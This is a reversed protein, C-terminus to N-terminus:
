EEALESIANLRAARQAPYWGAVFAAALILLSSQVVFHLPFHFQITWGFSQVNIVHILVWSLALGIFVGIVQSVGALLLAEIFVMKKLQRVETGVLRLYALEKRRELILTLLTSAVGLIAVFISILELAYTIEFTSDFIRLIERRLSSNTHIFVRYTKGLSALIRSRAGEASVGEQLYIALSFPQIEGFNRTFTRNDMLITGRDNTYDYFIATVLFIKEGSPMALKLEDGVQKNYKYSFSESVIVVDQGIAARLAERGEQPNKILLQGRKRLVEFDRAGLNIMSEGFPLTFSRFGDVAAVDPNERFLTVLQPSLHTETGNASRGAPRVYLDAQLTQGVWYIVTDRFSEIMIAIAAMMSLSVALAAVSISIRSIGGKLNANALKGEVGFMKSLPISGVRGLLYLVAPTLFATGFVIAVASLYGFVPISGKPKVNALGAGLAFFVIPLVIHRKKLRFRTELRDAGTIASLPTVRSAEWSPILAALLSLPMGMGFALAVDAWGLSPLKSATAIYLVKVTTGTIKLALEALFRSGLLGTFCGCIAILAAEALFLLMVTLRSTGLARLIGIEQRRSIVSISITNYILFLGVLMSIYSLATLNFHFAELMKEVQEGRRSPLQIIWGPPLNQSIKEQLASSSIKTGPIIELRDIKGLRDFAWQAAAIDMLLFNGDMARAPGDDRLLGRVLFKQPRDRIILDLPSGVTLGYRSAFKETIVVSQPDLLLRLFEEPTPDRRQAEFELLRYERFPRDRLIDVGLIRLSEAEGKPGVFEGEGEIVPSLEGYENLWSLSTLLDEDLGIGSSRIELGAKGSLTEVATAFGLLSARNAMQIALVVAVGLTIGLISVAVRLREKALTRLIFQRLLTM